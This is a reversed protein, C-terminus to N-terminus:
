FTLENLFKRCEPLKEHAEKILEENRPITFAIYRKEKPIDGFTMNREIQEAQKVYEPNIDPDILGMSWALKRKADEILRLPTDVLCYVLKSNQKKLLDMYGHLQWIYIKNVPKKIVSHFTFIDWSTKVDLVTDGDIIDPTGILFDNRFKEKNKNYLTGTVLSYLTISDDEMETGKEMYKNVFDKRRGYTEEIWIEMLKGKCTEGLGDGSKAPTMLEGLSSPHFLYEDFKGM